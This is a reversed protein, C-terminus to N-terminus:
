MNFVPRGIQIDYNISSGVTGYILKHTSAYMYICLPVVVIKNNEKLEKEKESRM